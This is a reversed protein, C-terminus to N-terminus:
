LCSIIFSVKKFNKEASLRHFVLGENHVYARLPAISTILIYVRVSVIRNSILLPNDQLQQM